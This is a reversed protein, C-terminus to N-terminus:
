TYPMPIYYPYLRELEITYPLKILDRLCALMASHVCLRAKGGVVVHAAISAWAKKIIEVGSFDIYGNMDLMEFLIQALTFVVTIDCNLWQVYKVTLTSIYLWQKLDKYM